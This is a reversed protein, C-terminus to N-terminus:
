RSKEPGAGSEARLCGIKVGGFFSFIVIYEVEFIVWFIVWVYFRLFTFFWEFGSKTWFRASHDRGRKQSSDGSHRPM